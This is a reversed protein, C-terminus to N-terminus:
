DEAGGSRDDKNSRCLSWLHHNAADHILREYDQRTDIEIWGRSFLSGTIEGGQQLLELLLDSIYALCWEKSRQFPADRALRHDVGEFAERFQETGRTTMRWLGTFEGADLDPTAMPDIDRGIDIVSGDESFLVLEGASIPNDDRGRYTFEWDRDVAIIIDGQTAMLQRYIEPEVYIDSYTAIVPGELYDAAYMLSHLISNNEYDQNLVKIIGPRDIMEAKYGAVVVIEECGADHMRDITFDLLTRGAVPLLCKPRDDTMDSMRVGLGAAIVIGRM